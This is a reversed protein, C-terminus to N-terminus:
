CRRGGGVRPRGDAKEDLDVGVVVLRSLVAAVESKEDFVVDFVTPANRYKPAGLKNSRKFVLAAFKYIDNKLAQSALSNLFIITNVLM